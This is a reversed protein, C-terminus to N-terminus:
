DAAGANGDLQHGFDAHARHGRAHGFRMGVDDQDRAIGAAGARRREAGDLVGANRPFQAQGFRVLHQHHVIQAAADAHLGIAFQLGAAVDGDGRQQAGLLEAEGGRRQHGHAADHHALAMQVGARHADGRLVRRQAGLELARGLVDDIEEEEDGFLHAAVHRLHAEASEIFHHAADVHQFRALGQVVPLGLADVKRGNQVVRRHGAAHRAAADLRLIVAEVLREIVLQDLVGALGELLPVGMSILSGM